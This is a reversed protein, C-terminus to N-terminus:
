IQSLPATKLKLFRTSIIETKFKAYTRLKSNESKIESFSNQHFIDCAREFSFQSPPKRHSENDVFLDLQGTQSLKTEIANPWKLNNKIANEYSLLTLSNARKM